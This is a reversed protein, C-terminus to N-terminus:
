KEKITWGDNFGDTFRIAWFMKAPCIGGCEFRYDKTGNIGEVWEGESFYTHTLRKGESLAKIAEDRTM